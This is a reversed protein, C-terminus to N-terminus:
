ETVTINEGDLAMGAALLTIQFEPKFILGAMADKDPDKAFSKFLATALKQRTITGGAAAVQETTFAALKDSVDASTPGTAKTVAKAGAKATAKEGPM